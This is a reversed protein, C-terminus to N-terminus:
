MPNSKKQNADRRLSKIVEIIENSALDIETKTTYRGVSFRITGMAYELPVKMADLTASVNVCDTHCAAGASAAVNKLRSLIENVQIKKFSVSLTNPLCFDNNGNFQVDSLKSLNRRLIRILNKEHRMRKDEEEMALEAAKGLGIIELVNETGARLNREHDAGHILKQLKIGERIYLAGIGKPGYFKHGALTLLDVGLEQINVPVKGVAQACDSHVIINNQKALKSIESVPQLTGVENNAYMISILITDSRIAKKVDPLQVRGTEDVPLYTVDFGQTELFKCVETVAPHEISSTIIHKGKDQNAFAYGKLAYNNSESGGSTFILEEADCNLLAAVQKRAKDVAEKCQRGYFHSSSPNGFFGKLYPIMADAVEPAIPTTANYDLYIPKM